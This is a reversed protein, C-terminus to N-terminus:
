RGVGVLSTCRSLCALSDACWDRRQMRRTESEIAQRWSTIAEPSPTPEGNLRLKTEANALASIAAQARAIDQDLRKDIKSANASKRPTPIRRKCCPCINAM